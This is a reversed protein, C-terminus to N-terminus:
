PLPTKIIKLAGEPANWYNAQGNWLYNGAGPELYRTMSVPIAIEDSGKIRGDFSIVALIAKGPTDQAPKYTLVAASDDVWWLQPNYHNELELPTEGLISGDYSQKVLYTKQQDHDFKLRFFVQKENTLAFGSWEYDFSKKLSGSSNFLHIKQAGDDSVLLNNEKDVLIKMPQILKESTIESIKNGQPSINILRSMYGNIAWISDIKGVGDIVFVFDELLVKESAPAYNIERLLKGDHSFVLFRNGVSDAVWIEDAHVRFSLPGIPVPMDEGPNTKQNIYGVSGPETGFKVTVEAFVMNCCIFFALVFTTLLSKM